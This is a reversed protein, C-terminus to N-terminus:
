NELQLQIYRHDHNITSVVSKSGILLVTLNHTVNDLFVLYIKVQKKGEDVIDFLSRVFAFM